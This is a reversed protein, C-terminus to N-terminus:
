PVGAGVADMYAEIATRFALAETDDTFASGWGAGGVRKNGFEAGTGLLYIPGPSLGTSARTVTTLETGDKYRDYGGSGRRVTLTMGLATPSGGLSVSDNSDSNLRTMVQGPSAVYRRSMIYIDGAGSVAGMDPLDVSTGPDQTIYVWAHASNQTMAGGATSPTFGSNLLYSSGNGLYGKNPRFLATTATAGNHYDADPNFGVASLTYTGPAKINLKAAEWNHTAPLYLCDIKNWMADSSARLTDILDSLAKQNPRWAPVSVTTRIFAWFAPNRVTPEVYINNDVDDSSSGDAAFTGHGIQFAVGDSLVEHPTATTRMVFKNGHSHPRMSADSEGSIASITLGGNAFGVAASQDMEIHNGSLDYERNGNFMRVAFHDTSGKDIGVYRLRNDRLKLRGVNETRILNTISSSRADIDNDIIDVDVNENFKEEVQDWDAAIQLVAAGPGEGVLKNGIIRTKIAPTSIKICQGSRCGAIDNGEVDVDFQDDGDTNSFVIGLGMDRIFNNRVKLDRARIVRIGFNDDLVDDGMSGGILRNGEVVAVNIGHLEIAFYQCNYVENWRIFYEEPQQDALAWTAPTAGGIGTRICHAMNFFKCNDIRVRKGYRGYIAPYNDSSDEVSTGNFVLGDIDVDEIREGKVITDGTTHSGITILSRNAVTKRIEHGPLGRLKVGRKLIQVPQDSGGANLVMRKAPFVFEVGGYVDPDYVALAKNVVEKQDTTLHDIAGFWDLKWQTNGRPVEIEPRVYNNGSADQIAPENGDTAGSHGIWEGQYQGSAVVISDAPRATGQRQVGLATEDQFISKQQVGAQDIPVSADRGNLQVVVRTQSVDDVREVAARPAVM